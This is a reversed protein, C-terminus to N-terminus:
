LGSGAGGADLLAELNKLANARHSIANKEEKDLEAMTRGLEPVYFIPDYGFGNTGRREPFIVGECSGEVIITEKGPVAMALACHFRATRETDPTDALEALVKDINAEDDKQEGAYRASYIGPRGELADVALGSDDGIVATGLERSIEEAKLVANEAFSTGTEDVDRAGPFDLLTLVKIGRKAFIAEFEKAKGPNKTAILVEKM